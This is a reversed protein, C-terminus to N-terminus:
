LKTSRLAIDAPPIGDKEAFGNADEKETGEEEDTYTLSHVRLLRLLTQVLPHILRSNVPRVRGRSSIISVIFGAVVVGICGVASYYLYSISYWEDAITPRMEVVDAVTPSFGTPSFGTPTVITTTYNSMVNCGATTLPLPRTKIPLAPYLQAGIGVWLSLFLGVFLGALAGLENAWPFYIGLIFLGLLPGGMMGLISLAAQLVNGLLSAVLSMVICVGGFFVSLGKSTWSLKRESAGRLFPLRPRLIDELTVTALANISSSVTSLTGSYAAAVFLGPLGPYGRFLNVVLYPLVQDPASIEGNTFPDCDKYFAHILLGCLVVCWLILVLGVLNLYLALKAQVMSRCAIYRQVQSQNVGYVALWTFWGGALITWFTHRRLPDPDFDWFNLRSGNAAQEWVVNIGGALNTGQVIVAIFGAVMVGCQFVDTWVVAKLGGLTCYLTCVAGTAVVAGWLNFGTVQNLALAPAYIVIGTYLITQVIYMATACLRVSQGFRMELYEYTSTVGLRYFVPLFGEATALVVLLYTFSFCSFIAGFRYIEAPTGLVTVGSMFSATLSLAVPAASMQRGGVLFGGATQQSRDFVAYYVGIATSVLLMAAFVVYDWVGFAGRSHFDGDDM